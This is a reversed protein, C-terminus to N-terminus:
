SLNSDKHFVLTFKGDCYRSMTIESEPFRKSIDPNGKVPAIAGNGCLARKLGNVIKIMETRHPEKSSRAICNPLGYLSSAAFDVDPTIDNPPQTKEQPNPEPQQPPKPATM